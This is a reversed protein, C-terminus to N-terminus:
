GVLKETDIQAKQLRDSYDIVVTKWDSFEELAHPGAERTKNGTAKVGGFPVGVEAGITPANIYTIGAQLDHMAQLARNVDRTYISSSLGYIVDNAVRVAEEYSKIRIVSLVPGFIEEKTIRMGHKAEFVTPELFYGKDFPPKTVARGGALVKAGERKGIEIYSLIKEYQERSNVPGVDTKPERPDGVRLKRVRELVRGLFEDYVGEHLILRSTATCRQGSTGFAGFMLGELALDLNADDMVIMPNKGGLELGCAALRAAARQYVIKGTEVGGTFSIGRVDPHTVLADGAVEGIGSVMNVVGPPVGAEHLCEVFKAACLTTQEAPKLVLTNGAMLAASSKWAPIAIPFNWPTILGVVGLPVRMTMLHKKPLESPMTEGFMRRGEGFIYEFIDIAEQVDGEAEPLIKGMETAVLLGLEKKREKFVRAAQLLIQARRPAPTRMWDPLAEKAAKVAKDVDGQTGQPFRALLSGDIPSRSELVEKSSSKVWEGGIFLGYTPVKGNKPTVGKATVVASARAMTEGPM